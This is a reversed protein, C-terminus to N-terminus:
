RGGFRSATTCGERPPAEMGGVQWLPACTTVARTAVRDTAAAVTTRPLPTRTYVPEAGAAAAAAGRLGEATVPAAVAIM